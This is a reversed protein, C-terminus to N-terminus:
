RRKAGRGHGADDVMSPNASERPAPKNAKKAAAEADVKANRAEREAAQKAKLEEKALEAFEMETLNEIQTRSVKPLADPELTFVEGRKFSIPVRTLFRRRKDKDEPALRKASLPYEVGPQDKACAVKRWPPDLPKAPQDGEVKAMAEVVLAQRNEWQAFTLGVVVNAPLQGGFEGVVRCKDM